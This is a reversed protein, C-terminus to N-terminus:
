SHRLEDKAVLYRKYCDICQYLNKGLMQLWEDVQKGAKSLARLMCTQLELEPKGGRACFPHSLKGKGKHVHDLAEPILAEFAAADRPNRRVRDVLEDVKQSANTKSLSSPGAVASASSAASAARSMSASELPPTGPSRQRSM